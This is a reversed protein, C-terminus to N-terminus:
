DKSDTQAKEIDILYLGIAEVVFVGPRFIEMTTFSGMLLFVFYFNIYLKDRPLKIFIAKLTYLLLGALAIPGIMIYFGMLGLDDWYMGMDHEYSRMLRAYSSKGGPLGSGLFYVSKNIPFKKFFFDLQIVRIYKDGQNIQKKSEVVMERLISSPGRIQFIGVFLLALIVIVAYDKVSFPVLKIFMIGSLLLAILTLTRFGGMLLIVFFFLAILVHHLRRNLLYRNLLLFYALMLFGNGEIRLRLTGRDDRPLTAWSLIMHPYLKVQIIYILSYLIAFIIIIKELYEKSLKLKHLFFYFLIFYYFAFTLLSDYIPQGQNIYASFINVLIGVFFLIISNRFRLGENKITMFFCIGFTLWCLLNEANFKQPIYVIRWFHISILLFIIFISKKM